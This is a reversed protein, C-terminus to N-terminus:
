PILARSGRPTKDGATTRATEGVSETVGKAESREHRRKNQIEKKKKKTWNEGARKM